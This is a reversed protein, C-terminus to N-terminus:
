SPRKQAVFRLQTVVEQGLRFLETYKGRHNVVSNLDTDCVKLGRFTMLYFKVGQSEPYAYGDAPKADEAYAAAAKVFQKAASEVAEHSFGGIIGFTSTTYVSANGDCLAVVSATHEANIPWDMMVGYVEPYEASPKIGITTPEVQLAKLRLGKLDSADGRREAVALVKWAVFGGLVLLALVFVIKM